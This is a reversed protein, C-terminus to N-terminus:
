YSIIRERRLAEIMQCAMALAQLNLRLGALVRQWCTLRRFTRFERGAFFGTQGVDVRLRANPGNGDTMLVLPPHAVVMKTADTHGNYRTYRLDDNEPTITM